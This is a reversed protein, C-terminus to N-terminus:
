WHAQAQSGLDGAGFFQELLCTKGQYWIRVPAYWVAMGGHWQCQMSAKVCQVHLRCSPLFACWASQLHLGLWAQDWEGHM